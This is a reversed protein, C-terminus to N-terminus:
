SVLGKKIRYYENQKALLCTRCWVGYSYRYADVLSHGQKCETREIKPKKDVLGARVQKAFEAAELEDEFTGRHKGNVEVVWNNNQRQFWYGKGQDTLNRANTSQTCARLNSRRNDTRDHNIHDTVMDEPTEAILRHLRTTVKPSGSRNVAYGTDGLHWKRSAYIPLNTLDIVVSGGTIPLRVWSVM